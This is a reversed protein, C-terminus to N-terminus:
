RKELVVNRRLVEIESRKLTGPVTFISNIFQHCHTVTQGKLMDRLLNALGSIDETQLIADKQSLLLTLSVRFLIKYGELFLCDWIRLVTEIPLVEAFLCILWKTTVVALPLGFHDLRQNIQPARKNLLEKLVEIDIILGTMTKTHYSSAIEDVIIKLLWFTWEEDKTVILILGAIYNLGQCYGVDRNHHAYAILVNFLQLKINDFFINDPFTRPLDIKISEVVDADFQTKLLSRYLDPSQKQLQFGGSITMWVEGRLHVPIGKRVYRKLQNSNNRFLNPKKKMYRDWKIRRNTLVTLYSKMVTEYGKYDFDEDRKFGYEDIDSFKSAAM